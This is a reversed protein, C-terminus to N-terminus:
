IVDNRQPIRDGAANTGAPNKLPDLTRLESPVTPLFVIGGLNILIYLASTALSILLGDARPIGVLSLAEVYLWERIGLGGLTIPLMTGLAILPFLASFPVFGVGHGAAVTVQQFIWLVLGSYLFSYVVIRMVARPKLSSQALSRHFDATTQLGKQWLTQSRSDLFRSYIRDGKFVLFLVAAIAIWSLLYAGWLPFGRWRMPYILAAATGYILLSLLGAGRDQLVSALGIQLPKHNKKSVIYAKIADGGVLSPLGINFFMGTFYMQVFNRYSGQMHLAAAFIRWRESCLLQGVWCLLILVVLSKGSFSKLDQSIKTIDVSVFVLFLLLLTMLLKLSNALLRPIKMASMTSPKPIESSLLGCAFQPRNRFYHWLSLKM